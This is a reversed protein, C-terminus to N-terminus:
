PIFRGMNTRGKFSASRLVRSAPNREDSAKVKRREALDEDGAIPALISVLDGVRQAAIGLGGAVGNVGEVLLSEGPRQPSAGLTRMDNVPSEIGLLGLSQPLQKVL